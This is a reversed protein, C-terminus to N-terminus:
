MMNRALRSISKCCMFRMRQCASVSPSAAKMKGSVMPMTLLTNRKFYLRAVEMRSALM